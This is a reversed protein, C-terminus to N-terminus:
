SYQDYVFHKEDGGWFFSWYRFTLAGPEAYRHDNFLVDYMLAMSQVYASYMINDREVPNWQESLQDSLHANFIAGGRSVDRWYMWVAPHLMKEILRQFTPQFVGPAAPLRYFYTLGLAYAMYALQFRYGGFDEQHAARGSMYSWDNPQQRSLNDIHRIHGLQLTDLIPIKEIDLSLSGNVHPSGNDTMLNSGKSAAPTKGIADRM